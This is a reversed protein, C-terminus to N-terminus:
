RSAYVYIDFKTPDEEVETPLALKLNVSSKRNVSFNGISYNGFNMLQQGRFYESGSGFFSGYIRSGPGRRSVFVYVNTVPAEFNLTMWVPGGDREVNNSIEHNFILTSSRGTGPVSVHKSSAFFPLGRGIMPMFAVCKKGDFSYNIMLNADILGADKPNFTVKISSNNVIQHHFSEAHSAPTLNSRSIFPDVKNSISVSNIRFTSRNRAFNGITFTRENRGYYMTCPGFDTSHQWSPASSAGFTKNVLMLTSDSPNGLLTNSFDLKSKLSQAAFEGRVSIQNTTITVTTTTRTRTGVQLIYTKGALLRRKILFDRHPGSDDDAARQVPRGSQIVFLAAEPDSFWRADGEIRVDIDVPSSFRLFNSYRNDTTIPTSSGIRVDLPNVISPSRWVTRGTFNSPVPQAKLDQGVLCTLLSLLLATPLTAIKTKM